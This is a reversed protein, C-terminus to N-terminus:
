KSGDVEGYFAVCRPHFAQVMKNQIKFEKGEISEIYCTAKNDNIQIKYMEVPKDDILISVSLNNCVSDVSHSDSCDHSPQLVLVYLSTPTKSSSSTPQLRRFFLCSLTLRKRRNFWQVTRSNDGVIRDLGDRDKVYSGDAESHAISRSRMQLLSFSCSSM